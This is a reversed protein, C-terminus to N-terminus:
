ESLRYVFKAQFEKFQEEKCLVINNEGLLQKYTDYDIKAVALGNIKKIAAETIKLRMVTNNFQISNSCFFYSLKEEKDYKLIYIM